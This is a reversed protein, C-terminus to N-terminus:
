RWPRLMKVDDMVSRCLCLIEPGLKRVVIERIATEDQKSAVPMGAEIRHVGAEAMKEAIRIKDEPTFVIGTQQEGDRLTMDHINPALASLTAERLRM